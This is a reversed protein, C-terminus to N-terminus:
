GEGVTQIEDVDYDFTSAMEIPASRRTVAPRRPSTCTGVGPCRGTTRRRSSAPAPTPTAARVRSSRRAAPCMPRAWARRVHDRRRQGHGVHRRHVPRDGVGVGPGGLRLREGARPRRRRAVHRHQRHRRRGPLPQHRGGPTSRRRPPPSPPTSSSRHISPRRRRRGGSRHRRGDCRVVYLQETGPEAGHRRCGAPPTGTCRGARSSRGGSTPGSGADAAAWHM